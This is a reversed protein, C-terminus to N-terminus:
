KVLKKLKFAISERFEPIPITLRGSDAKLKRQEGISQGSKTDFFEVSWLEGAADLSLSQNSTPDAPWNPPSCRGDRMWGIMSQENGLVAGRLGPSLKCAIPAFRRFDIGKAFAVAPVAATHYHRCIDANEFEDYGDQWWLARGNMAGSVLAAWIAHRVGVDARPATELTKGRPPASDLGCEGIMVPKGYKELRERVSALILDDLRGAVGADGYPHVELFDLWLSGSLKPWDNIGAQSATIPRKMPDHARIREAAAQVFGVAHEEIAGSVLDVESFIEWAVIAKRPAWRKVLTELRQLWLKRCETDEFLEAPRKAPGGKAANFPNKDWTHWTEKNSGDNWEAWGGLVPMVVLGQEEASDLIADWSKLMFPAIEGPQEGPPFYNFHIRVFHEGAAAAHKFHGAFTRPEKGAPNRGFVFGPTPGFRFYRDRAALTPRSKEADPEAKPVTAPPPGPSDSTPEPEPRKSCASALLASLLIGFLMRPM